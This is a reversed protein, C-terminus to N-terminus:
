FETLGQDLRGLRNRSHVIVVGQTKGISSSCRNPARDISNYFKKYFDLSSRVDAQCWPLGGMPDELEMIEQFRQSSGVRSSSVVWHTEESFIIAYVSRVDPLEDRSLINSWIQMYCDDLGMLFQMLKMLQNHKKFDEAAHCTCRPGRDCIISVPIGHRVVVEKLYLRALKDMPDTEKM